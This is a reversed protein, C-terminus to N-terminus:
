IIRRDKVRQGEMKPRSTVGGEQNWCEPRGLLPVHTQEICVIVARFRAELESRAIPSLRSGIECDTVLLSVSTEDTRILNCVRGRPHLTPKKLLAYSNM